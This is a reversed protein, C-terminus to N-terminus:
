FGVADKFEAIKKLMGASRFECYELCWTKNLNKEIEVKKGVIQGVM